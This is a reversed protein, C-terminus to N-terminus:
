MLVVPTCGTMGFRFLACKSTLHRQGQSWGFVLPRGRHGGKENGLGAQPGYCIRALTDIVEDANRVIDPV